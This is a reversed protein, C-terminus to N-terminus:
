IMGEQFAFWTPVTVVEGDDDDILKKPIWYREGDIEYCKAGKGIGDHVLEDYPIETIPQEGFDM